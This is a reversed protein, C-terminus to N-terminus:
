MLIKEKILDYLGNPLKTKFIKDLNRRKLLMASCEPSKCVYAGRGEIKKTEDLSIEGSSNKVVRLLKSKHRVQRCVVCRRMEIKKIATGKAAKGRSM